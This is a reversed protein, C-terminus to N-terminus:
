LEYLQYTRDVPVNPRALGAAGLGARMRTMASFAAAYDPHMRFVSTARLSHEPQLDTFISRRELGGIRTRWRAVRAAWVAETGAPLEVMSGDSLRETLDAIVSRIWRM